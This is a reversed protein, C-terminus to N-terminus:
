SLANAGRAGANAGEESWRTVSGLECLALLSPVDVSTLVHQFIRYEGVIGQDFGLACVAPAVQGISHGRAIESRDHRARGPDCNGAHVIHHGQAFQIRFSNNRRPQEHM